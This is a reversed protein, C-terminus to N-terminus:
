SYAFANLVRKDKSLKRVLDREERQDLFFGTKQGDFRVIFKMGNELVEVEERAEGFLVGEYPKLGEEKRSPINSKEIIARPAYADTLTDVLAQKRLEAGLTSIQVVLVDAYRDVVIGPM